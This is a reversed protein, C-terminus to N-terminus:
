VKKDNTMFRYILGPVFMVTTFILIIGFGLSFTQEIIWISPRTILLTIGAALCILIFELLLLEDKITSKDNKIFSFKLIIEEM